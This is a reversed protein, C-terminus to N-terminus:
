EPTMKKVREKEALAEKRLKEIQAEDNQSEEEKAKASPTKKRNKECKARVSDSLKLRIIKDIITFVAQLVKLADGMSQENDGIEIKARMFVPYKNYVQQDTIHLEQLCDGHKQLIDGIARDILQNTVEENEGLVILHDRKM